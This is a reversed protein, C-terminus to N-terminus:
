VANPDGISYQNHVKSFHSKLLRWATTVSLAKGKRRKPDALWQMVEYPCFLPEAIRGRGGQGTFKRAAKLKPSTNLNDFWTADMGTFKGFADILEKRTAVMTFDIEEIEVLAPTATDQAPAAQYNEQQPEFGNMIIEGVKDPLTPNWNLDREDLREPATGRSQYDFYRLFDEEFEDLWVFVGSPLLEIARAQWAARSQEDRAGDEGRPFKAHLEGSLGALQVCVMQWDDRRVALTMGLHHKYALLNRMPSRLARDKPHTSLKTALMDPSLGRKSNWGTVYPIARVPIAERGEIKIIVNV